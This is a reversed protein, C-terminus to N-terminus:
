RSEQGKGSAGVGTAWEVPYGRPTVMRGAHGYTTSNGIVLITRMDMGEERLEGLRLVSFSQGPRYADRVVGVLTDEGRHSRIRRLAERFRARRGQSSPNYLAIALDAQLAAELRRIIVPWPTLRDSLSLVAFDLALPAGLLSAAATAATIGPVVQVDPRRGDWGEARLVAFALPAMGYIGADGSSVLAVDLGAAALRVAERAREEETALPYDLFVKDVLWNRLQDLYARYGLVVDAQRLAQRAALTMMAPDGPGIGIIRLRGEQRAQVKPHVLHLPLGDARRAIAVTVGDRREKPVVLSAGSGAARLAAAEAVSPTGVTAAVQLSPNPVTERALEEAKYWLLPVGLRRALELLGLEDQKRDISALAGLSRPSWGGRRLAAMLARFLTDADTGRACGIGAVLTPPRLYLVPSLGERIPEVRDSVVVGAAAKGEQLAATFETRDHCTFFASGGGPFGDVREVATGAEQWLAVREGGVLAKTVESLATDEERRWGHGWGLSALSPVGKGESATTIVAQADLVEAVATALLNAGGHGSLLPIAFRGAEDVVVVAPDSYKSRAHPPFLRAAIGLAGVFIIADSTVFAEAVQRRLERGVVGRDEAEPFAVALRRLM